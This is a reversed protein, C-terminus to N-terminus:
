LVDIPTVQVSLLLAIRDLAKECGVRLGAIAIDPLLEANTM